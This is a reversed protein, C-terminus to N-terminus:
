KNFIYWIFWIYLIFLFIFIDHFIFFLIPYSLLFDFFDLILLYLIM